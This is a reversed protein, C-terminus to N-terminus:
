GFHKPKYCRPIAISQLKMLEMRWKEWRMKVDEPIPDDWDLHLSCLEQLISKGQLMLPAVFGIPDYVSSVTSLIGRRMGPKDQLVISFEFSDSEICWQVGLTRELPLKDLDLDIEKVGEARDSEPISKIIDKNNSLFKHLNFAGQHCMAKVNKVLEVASAPTPVSKLGDDVYFDNRIFNAAEEGYEREFDNATQKPAFNACSPSSTASFLHVTMHYDVPDKSLDNREWWLFRLLNRYEPNLRVQHFMGEIDCTVAIPEQRFRLLIGTLDNTLLPGQILYKNLSEGNYEQSCNFVM